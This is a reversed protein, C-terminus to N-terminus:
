TSKQYAALWREVIAGKPVVEGLRKYEADLAEITEPTVTICLKKRGRKSQPLNIAASRKGSSV